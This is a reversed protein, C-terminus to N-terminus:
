RGNRGDLPLGLESQSQGYGACDSASILYRHENRRPHIQPWAERSDVALEDLARDFPDVLGDVPMVDQEVFITTDSDTDTDSRGGERIVAGFQLGEDSQGILLHIAALDDEAPLGFFCSRCGSRNEGELFAPLASRSM